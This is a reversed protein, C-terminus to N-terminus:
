WHFTVGLAPGHMEMDELAEDGTTAYNITRFALVLDGWSYRYGLGILGQWTWNSYNGLGVDVYYPLFWRNADGLFFEGRVGLIGDWVDLREYSSISYALSGNPGSFSLSTNTAVGLYRFGGLLDLTGATGRAITYSVAGQWILSEIRIDIDRNTALPEAGLPGQVQKVRGQQHGFDAYVLDAVLSWNGKRADLTGMLGFKLNDLYSDPKVGVELSGGGGLPNKHQLTQEINPFWAYPTFNYHWQGDYSDVTAALATGTTALISSGTIALWVGAQWLPKKM